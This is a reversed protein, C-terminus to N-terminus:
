CKDTLSSIKYNRVPICNAGTQINPKEQKLVGILKARKGIEATPDVKIQLKFRWRVARLVIIKSTKENVAALWTIFSQDRTIKTLHPATFPNFYHFKIL